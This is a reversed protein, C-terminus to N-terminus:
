KEGHVRRFKELRAEKLQRLGVRLFSDDDGLGALELGDALPQQFRVSRRHHFNQALAIDVRHSREAVVDAFYEAHQSNFGNSLGHLLFHVRHQLEVAQVDVVPVQSQQAVHHCGLSVQHGDRTMSDVSLVGSREHSARELLGNVHQHVRRTVRFHIRHAAHRLVDDHTLQGAHTGPTEVQQEVGVFALVPHFNWM